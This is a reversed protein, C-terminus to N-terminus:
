GVRCATVQTIFSVLSCPLVLSRSVLLVVCCIQVTAPGVTGGPDNRALDRLQHLSGVGVM